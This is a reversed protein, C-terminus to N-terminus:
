SNGLILQDATQPLHIRVSTGRRAKSRVSITGGHAQVIKNVIAMGLGTGTKKSTLFPQFLNLQQTHTMGVGSDRIEIWAMSIEPLAKPSTGTSIKLTGGDPMAQLANLVLNLLAQEMQARDARVSPTAEIPQWKLIVRQSALKHRILLILEEVLSALPVTEFQPESSRALGLVREVTHNMQDMKRTLVEFDRHRPDTESIERKLNHTLMKVVTLPNRIEHAVEAALLGIASLREGQRLEEETSVLREALHCRQIALAAQNALTKTIQIEDNSFRHPTKTCVCLVGLTREGSLLPVALMSTLSLNRPLVSFFVPESKELEYVSVSKRRRIVAGLQSDEAPMPTRPAQGHSLASWSLTETRPDHLMVTSFTANMLRCAGRVVADLVPPLTEIEMIKQSLTLLADLQRARRQAQNYLWASQILSSIQSAVAKLLEEDETTFAQARVNDVNLVGIIESEEEKLFPSPRILPVALESRVHSRAAVYRADQRVDDVRAAKGHLAVWGTIGRGIELKLTRGRTSLGVSAEIELQGTEPNILAVSGSTARMMRVTDTLALKLILEPNLQSHFVRTLRGLLAWHESAPSKGSARTSRHRPRRTGNM